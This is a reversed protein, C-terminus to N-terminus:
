PQKAANVKWLKWLEAYKALERDGWEAAALCRTLTDPEGADRPCASPQGTAGPLAPVAGSGARARLSAYRAGLAAHRTQLDDLVEQAAQAHRAAEQANRVKADAAEKAVSAQFTAYEAKTAQWGIHQVAAYFALIGFAIAVWTWKNLAISLWPM